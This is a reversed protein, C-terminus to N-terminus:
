SKKNYIISDICIAVIMIIGKLIGQIFSEMGILTLGNNLVGIILMGVLIGSIKGKGGRVSVGGLMIATMADFTYSDGCTCNVNNLRAAMMIAAIAALFSGAMYSGIKVKDVNIGSLRAAESNGGVSYIYRGIYTKNLIFSGILLIILMIIVPVPVPGIYGQSIYKFTDSFKSIQYGGTIGFSIGSFITGYGLTAIFPNINFKIIITGNIFGVVLSLVVAILMCLWMNWGRNIMLDCCVVAFLTMQNGLSIDLGGSLSIIAAGLAVVGLVSVQRIVLFINSMTLFRRSAVSFFVVLAILVLTIVNERVFTKFDIKKKMDKEEYVLHM